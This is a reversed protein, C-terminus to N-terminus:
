EPFGWEKLLKRLEYSTWGVGRITKSDDSGCGIPIIFKQKDTIIQMRDYHGLVIDENAFKDSERKMAKCFIKVVEKIRKREVIEAWLNHWDEPKIRDEDMVNEYFAIRQINGKELYEWICELRNYKEWEKASPHTRCTCCGALHLVTERFEEFTVEDVPENNDEGFFVLMQINEKELNNFLVNLRQCEISEGLSVCRNNGTCGTIGLLTVINIILINKM